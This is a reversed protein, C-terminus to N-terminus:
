SKGSARHDEAAQAITEIQGDDFWKRLREDSRIIKGSDLHHNERGNVLGLDHCAAAMLLVERDMEKKVVEPALSYLEMAQSMVTMVHDRRHAPDFGDYRPVIESEIFSVIEERVNEHRAMTYWIERACDAPSDSFKYILKNCQIM